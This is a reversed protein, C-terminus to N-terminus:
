HTVVYKMKLIGQLHFSVKRFWVLGSSITDRQLICFDEYINIFINRLRLVGPPLERLKSGCDPWPFFLCQNRGKRGGLLTGLEEGM